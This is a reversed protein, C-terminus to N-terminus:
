DEAGKEPYEPSISSVTFPTQNVTDSENVFPYLRNVPRRIIAKTKGLIVEAGRSKGDKSPILNIVRGVRWLHRPEKQDYVIVIDNLKIIDSHQGRIMRQTERLFSIYEKRWRGWFHDLM